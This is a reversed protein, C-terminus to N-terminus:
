YSTKTEVYLKESLDTNQLFLYNRKILDLMDKFVIYNEIIKSNGTLVLIEKARTIAVNLKRDIVIGDIEKPSIINKIDSIRNIAFSFIIAERESGQFREVTDIDIDPYDETIADRIKSCHLRFPAIIGIDEPLINEEKILKKCINKIIEIESSNTKFLSEKESDVFLIKKNFPYNYKKLQNKLLKLRGNYFLESALLMIESNMRGQTELLGFAPNNHKKNLKILREFLSESLNNLEVENLIKSTELFYKESQLTISPLQKEDGILIFKNFKSVVGALQVELIQAAEDVICIDPEVLDFIEYNSTFSSLTGIVIKSNILKKYVDGPPKSELMNALINEDESSEKTGIRIYDLNMRKLVNSINEIARNTYATLYTTQNNIYYYKILNKIIIQTKGTGPPGQVIYYPFYSIANELIEMQNKNIIDFDYKKNIKKPLNLGIIQNKIKSNFLDFCFPIQKRILSGSEVKSISFLEMKNEFLNMKNRFSILATSRDISKITGKEVRGLTGQNSSIIVYDGERISNNQEDFEFKFHQKKEDSSEFNIKANSIENESNFISDFTFNNKRSSFKGTTQAFIERFYFALTKQFYEKEINSLSKYKHNFEKISQNLYQPRDGFKENTLDNFLNFNGKALALQIIIIWNRLDLVEKKIKIDNISNRFPNEENKSYLIQSVGRRNPFASDLLLNYCTTQALHNAWIPASYTNGYKDYLPIAKKPSSGSKLEIIDKKGDEYEILLDLRGQIGYQDSLFTPEVSFKDGDIEDLIFNLNEQHAQVESKINEFFKRGNKALLFTPLPKIFMAKDLEVPINTILADFVYNVLNGILLKDSPKTFDFLKLFYIKYNGGTSQFCEAIGTVDIM